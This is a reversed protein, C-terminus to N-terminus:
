PRTTSRAAKNGGETIRYQFQYEIWSPTDLPSSEWSVLSPAAERSAGSLRKKRTAYRIQRRRSACPNARYYAGRATVGWIEFEGITVRGIDPPTIRPLFRQANNNSNAAVVTPQSAAPLEAAQAPISFLSRVSVQSNVTGIRKMGLLVM